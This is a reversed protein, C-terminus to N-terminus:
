RGFRGTLNLMWMLGVAALAILVCFLVAFFRMQKQHPSLNRNKWKVRGANM